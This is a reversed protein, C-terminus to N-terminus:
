IWVWTGLKKSASVYYYVAGIIFIIFLITIFFGSASSIFNAFSFVGYRVFFGREYEYWPEAYDLRGWTGGLLFILPFVLLATFTYSLIKDRWIDKRLKGCHPCAIANEPMEKTCWECNRAM